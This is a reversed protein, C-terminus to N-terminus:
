SHDPKIAYLYLADYSLPLGQPERMTEYNAQIRQWASKGLLGPRRRQGGLEGAGLTRINKILSAADPGYVTHMQRLIVISEFGAAELAHRYEEASRFGLVHPYQDTGAFARNLEMLTQPGLTAVALSGGRKLIRHAETASQLPNTWQWALSSCYSDLSSAQIPLAELDGCIVRNVRAEHCMSFAHDLATIQLSPTKSALLRFAYGTGCGADLVTNGFPVPSANLLHAAIERQIGAVSDYASASRSFSQRVAHKYDPHPM